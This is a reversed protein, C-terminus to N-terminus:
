KHYLLKRAVGEGDEDEVVKFLEAALNNLAPSMAESHKADETKIKIKRYEKTLPLRAPEKDDEAVAATPAKSKRGKAAPKTIKTSASTKNSNANAKIAYYRTSLSSPKATAQPPQSGPSHYLKPIWLRCPWVLIAQKPSTSQFDELFPAFHHLYSHLLKVYDAPHRLSVTDMQKTLKHIQRWRRMFSLSAGFGLSPSLYLVAGPLISLLSLSELLPRRSREAAIRLSIPAYDVIGHRYRQNPEQGLYSIKPLISCLHTSGEEDRKVPM